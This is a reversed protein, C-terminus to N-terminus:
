QELRKLDVDPQQDPARRRRCSFWHHCRQGLSLQGHQDPRMGQDLLPDLEAVQGQGDDILLVAEADALAERDALLALADRVEERHCRGRDRACEAEREEAVEVDRDEVLHWRPAPRDLGAQNGGLLPRISVVEDALLDIGAALDEHDARENLLGVLEAHPRGRLLQLLQLM